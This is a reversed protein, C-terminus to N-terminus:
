VVTHTNTSWTLEKTIHVCLFVFSKVREVVAGDIYIPPALVDGM